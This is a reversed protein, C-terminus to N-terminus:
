QVGRRRIDCNQKPQKGRQVRSLGNEFSVVKLLSDAMLFSFLCHALTLDWDCCCKSSMHIKKQHINQQFNMPRSM